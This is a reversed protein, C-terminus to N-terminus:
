GASDSILTVLASYLGVLPLAKPSCNFDHIAGCLKLLQIFIGFLMVASEGEPGTMARLAACDLNSLSNHASWLLGFSLLVTGFCQEPNRWWSELPKEDGKRISSYM